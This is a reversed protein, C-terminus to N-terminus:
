PRRTEFMGEHYQKAPGDLLVAPIDKLYRDFFARSYANIIDHARRSGIPGSFGITPFIPSILDIDTLDIHYMGPVQVFYGDGSLSSYVARMTTQTQEIDNEAWGGATQRELRM